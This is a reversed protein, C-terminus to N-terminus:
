QILYVLNVVVDGDGGSPNGNKTFFELDVNSIIQTQGVGVSTVLSALDAGTNITKGLFDLSFMEVDAGVCRIAAITNTSYPSTSDNLGFNVSIPQITEGANRPISLTVPTTNSTLVDASPIVISTSYVAKPTSTSTINEAFNALRLINPMLQALTVQTWYVGEEPTQGSFTSPSGVYIAKWIRSNYSAFRKTIDTSFMDYVTSADYATVNEGSVVSQIVNYVKISQEDWETLTLESNKTTLPPNSVTRLVISDLESLESM